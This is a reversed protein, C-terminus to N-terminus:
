SLDQRKSQGRAVLDKLGLAWQVVLSLCSVAIIGAGAWEDIRSAVRENAFGVWSPAILLWVGGLLLVVQGIHGSVVGRRRRGRNVLDRRRSRWRAPIPM